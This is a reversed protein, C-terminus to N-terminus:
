FTLHLEDPKARVGSFPATGLGSKSAGKITDTEEDYFADMSVSTTGFASSLVLSSIIEKGDFKFVIFPAKIGDLISIASYNGDGENFVDWELYRDGDETESKIKWIGAIDAM